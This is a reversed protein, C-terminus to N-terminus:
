RAAVSKARQGPARDFVFAPIGKIMNATSAGTCKGTAPDKIGDAAAQLTKYEAVCDLGAVTAAGPGGLIEGQILSRIPQYGGVVGDISGDPLFAVRLRAKRIDYEARKGRAGGQGWKQSLHIDTPDTILVGNVIRGHLENRFRPNQSVTFSAGTLINMGSDTYPLDESSALLVSVDDDNVFSQVGGLQLVMTHEGDALKKNLYVLLDGPKGDVNRYNITCGLARYGQNDVGQEGKTGTFNEHACTDASGAGTADGDLNLGPAIKSQLMVASPRGTQDFTEANSCINTGNPGIAFSKWKKELEVENAKLLLRERETPALTSLYNQKLNKALGQPCQQDGEIFGPAFSTIVYGIVGNAPPIPMQAKPLDFPSAAQARREHLLGVGIIALVAPVAVALGLKAKQGLGRSTASNRMDM